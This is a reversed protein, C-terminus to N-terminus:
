NGSRVGVGQGPRSGQFGFKPPPAYRTRGEDSLALNSLAVASGEVVADDTARGLLSVLFETGGLVAIRRLSIATLRGRDQARGDLTLVPGDRGGVTTEDSSPTTRVRGPNPVTWTFFRGPTHAYCLDPHRVCGVFIARPCGFSVSM